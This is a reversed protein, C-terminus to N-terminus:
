RDLGSLRMKRYFTARSIGLSRAAASVNGDHKRLAVIIAQKNQDALTQAAPSLIAQNRLASPLHNLEICDDEALAVGLKLAQQLERINGPWNYAHLAAHAAPSLTPPASPAAAERLIEDILKELDPRDRLPPLTLQLGNIRYYLDERFLGKQIQEHLLRHTACVLSFSVARARSSGLRTVERDQLARLLRSQMDLPMDGIEDLFLTGESALEIKGAMGGRRAGTFAGDEYGFLESEILTEPISACNVGVFNGRGLPGNRHLWRALVDKGTGTEGNILVPVDGCFAKLARQYLPSILEANSGVHKISATQHHPIVTRASQLEARVYLQSGDKFQLAVPERAARQLHIGNTTFLNELTVPMGESELNSINLLQRAAPNAGLLQGQRDFHLLGRVPSNTLEPTYHVALRVEGKLDEVMRNEITRVVLALTELININRNQRDDHRSANLVGALTGDPFFTPVAACSFNRAEELFHEGGRVIYPRQETLACGPATTGTATENLNLGVRLARAQEDGAREGRFSRIVRGQVEIFALVWDTGGFVKLLHDMDKNIYRLIAERQESLERLEQRSVSCFLRKDSPTLGSERSRHWSRVVEGRVWHPPVERGEEFLQRAELLQHDLQLGTTNM